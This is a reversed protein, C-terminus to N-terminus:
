GGAYRGTARSYLFPSAPRFVPLAMTKPSDEHFAGTPIWAHDAPSSANNDNEARHLARLSTRLCEASDGGEGPNRTQGLRTGADERVTPMRFGIPALALNSQSLSHVQLLDTSLGRFSNNWARRNGRFPEALSARTAHMM